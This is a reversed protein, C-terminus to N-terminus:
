DPFWQLLDVLVRAVEQAMLLHADFGDATGVPSHPDVSSAALVAIVEDSANTVPM